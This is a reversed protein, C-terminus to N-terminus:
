DEFDFSEEYGYINTEESLDNKEIYFGEDNLYDEDYEDISDDFPDDELMDEDMFTEDFVPREKEVEDEDFLDDDFSEDEFSDDDDFEDLLTGGEQTLPSEIHNGYM